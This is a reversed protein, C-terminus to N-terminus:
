TNKQSEVKLVVVDSMQDHHVIRHNSVHLKNYPVWTVNSAQQFLNDTSNDSLHQEVMKRKWFPFDHEDFKVQENDYNAQGLIGM